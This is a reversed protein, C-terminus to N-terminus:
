SILEKAIVTRRWVPLTLLSAMWALGVIILFYSWQALGLTAFFLPASLSAGIGTIQGVLGAATGAMSPDSIARPLLAYTLAIFAGVALQQFAAGSLALAIHGSPTYFVAAGLLAVVVILTATRRATWGRTLLMGTAFSGLIGSLSALAMLQASRDLEVGHAQHLYLAGVANTGIGALASLSLSFGLRLVRTNRLIKLTGGVTAPVRVATLLLSGGALILVVTAHITFGLRWSETGAFGSVLLLGLAYGVPMVTSWLTMAQVQRRGQTGIMLLGQGATLVTVLTIGQLLLAVRLWTFESTQANLLGCGAMALLGIGLLPKPGFRDILWGVALGAFALPLLQGAIAFGVAPEPVSFARAIDGVLPGMMGLASTGALGFAYILLITSWKSNM